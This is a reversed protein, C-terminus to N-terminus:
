DSKQCGQAGGLVQGFWFDKQSGKFWGGFVVFIPQVKKNEFFMNRQSVRIYANNCDKHHEVNQHVNTVNYVIKFMILSLSM